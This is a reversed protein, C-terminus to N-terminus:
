AWARFYLRGFGLDDMIGAERGTYWEVIKFGATDLAERIENLAYCRQEVISDFRQWLDSTKRVFWILETRAIATKQDFSGRVFGLAGEESYRTWHQLDLCYAEELNMDFFFPAGPELAAHVSRFAHELDTRSLLHNLSDFTSIAAQFPRSVGFASANAVFFTAGPLDAQAKRILAESLDLGVVQYGREVLERTVHGCGCCVDLVRSKPRLAPFFLKEMAVRAVPLYWNHWARQYFDAVADYSSVASTPAIPEDAPAVAM